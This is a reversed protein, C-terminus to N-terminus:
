TSTEALNQEIILLKEKIEKGKETLLVKMRRSESYEIIVCESAVLKKLTQYLNSLVINMKKSLETPTNGKEEILTILFAPQKIIKM